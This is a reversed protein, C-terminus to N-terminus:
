VEAKEIASKLFELLKITANYKKGATKLDTATECVKNNMRVEYCKGNRVLKIKHKVSASDIFHYTRIVDFNKM